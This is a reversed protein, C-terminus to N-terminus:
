KFSKCYSIKYINRAESIERISKFILKITYLLGRICSYFIWSLFSSFVIKPYIEILNIQKNNKILYKISKNLRNPGNFTSSAIVLTHKKNMIKLLFIM